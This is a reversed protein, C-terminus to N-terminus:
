QGLHFTSRIWAVLMPTVEIELNLFVPPQDLRM